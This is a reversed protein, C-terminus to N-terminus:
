EAPPDAAPADAAPADATAAAGKILLGSDSDYQIPRLADATPVDQWMERMVDRGDAHVKMRESRASAASGKVAKVSVVHLYYQRAEGGDPPQVTVLQLQGAKLGIVRCGTAAECAAEGESTANPGLLFVAYSGSVKAVGLYLAATDVLGGLPTLRTLPRPKDADADYWRVETRYYVHPSSADKDDTRLDPTTAGGTAGGTTAGGTAGGTAAPAGGPADAATAAAAQKIPPRRFPNRVSGPRSRVSPPGVLKVAALPAAPADAPAGAAIPATASDGDDGRALLVPVAVLAIVLAVAVPWLRKDVLDRMLLRAFNM